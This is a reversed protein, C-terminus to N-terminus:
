LAFVDNKLSDFIPKVAGRRHEIRADRLITGTHEEVSAFTYRKHSDFAIYEM